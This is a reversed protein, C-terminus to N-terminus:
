SVLAVRSKINLCTFFKPDFKALQSRVYDIREKDQPLRVELPYEGQSGWLCSVSLAGPAPSAALVFAFIVFNRKMPKKWESSFGIAATHLIHLRPVNSLIGALTPHVVNTAPHLL